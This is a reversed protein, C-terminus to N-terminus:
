RLKIGKLREWEIRAATREAQTEAYLMDLGLEYLTRDNRRPTDGKGADHRRRDTM